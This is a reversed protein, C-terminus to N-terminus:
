IEQIPAVPATVESKLIETLRLGERFLYYFGIIVSLTFQLLHTVVSFALAYEESYGYVGCLAAVCGFQFTGIFGPASPFAVAIAVFVNVVMGAWPDPYRGMMWFASLYMLSLILWLALSWVIVLVFEWVGRIARLGTIFEHLVALLTVSGGFKEAIGSRRMFREIVGVLQDGRVYCLVIVVTVLLSLLGLAKIGASVFLPLDAIGAVSVFLFFMLTVLEFARETVVTAFASSFSIEGSRSLALPRVIEGARLPIVNTAFAGLMTARFLNGTTVASRDPLLLKWRLAKTYFFLLYLGIFVLIFPPNIQRLSAFFVRYDIDRFLFYILAFSLIVGTIAIIKKGKM